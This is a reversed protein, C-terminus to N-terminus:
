LEPSLLRPEFGAEVVKQQSFGLLHCQRKSGTKEGM